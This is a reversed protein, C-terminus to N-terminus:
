ASVPQAFGDAPKGEYVADSNRAISNFDYVACAECGSTQHQASNGTM